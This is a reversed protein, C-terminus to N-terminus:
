KELELIVQWAPFLKCWYKEYSEFSLMSLIWAIDNDANLIKRILRFGFKSYEGFLESKFRFRALTKQSRFIYNM